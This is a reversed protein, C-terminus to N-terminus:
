RPGRLRDLGDRVRALPGRAPDKRRAAEHTMAELAEMAADLVDRPRARRPDRWRTGPGPRRPTLDDLDGVVDVGSGKIWDIWRDAEGRAFYHMRPPLLLPASRREVLRDEALM